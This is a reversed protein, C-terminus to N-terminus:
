ESKIQEMIALFNGAPDKFWAIDPGAGILAGHAIGKEDTHMDGEYKEFKVGMQMLEDVVHNIDVVEFNLVTYTAPSHDQKEYVFVKGGGPLLIELGEKIERIPLALTGAYFEKAKTLNNVSFSSFARSNQLM